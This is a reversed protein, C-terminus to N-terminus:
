LNIRQDIPMTDYKIIPYPSQPPNEALDLPSINFLLISDGIIAHPQYDELWDYSWKGEQKSQYKSMQYFTASIALWGTTPGYGSRWETAKPIYYKVLGGGFYDVKIDRIENEDVYAALRKLDQGWDLSSDVLMKYKPYGYTFENFYSIYKPYAATVPIALSLVAVVVVISAVLKKSEIISRMAFGIFLYLFPLTPMLHRTGINLSGRITIAWYVAVPILLLWMFWKESDNKLKRTFVYIFSFVTLFIIAAPTKLIVAVPFFWSIAKDSFHGLIFTYNGGAVRAFVLAVGLLYHGIGRTIPNEGLIALFNRLLEFKPDLTLNKEIVMKEIEPSTNWVMPIYVIWVVALSILSILIFSKAYSWITKWFKKRDSRTELYSKVLIMIPFIGFLLFASFKLLQAVAFAVGALLLYKLTKQGLYKNFMYVAFTFGLAAAVDTTVYHSHALFEPTFSYLFLVFLGTKYGLEEVAWKYLLVGLLLALLIMPTRSWFLIHDANNGARYLFYWGSNWQEADNWSSDAKLGNLSIFSLPVGAIYKALPPHEPNLRFDNYKIYSYGAPIHAIEDVIGSDGKMSFFSIFFMIILLGAALLNYKFSTVKKERDEKSLKEEGSTKYTWFKNIFFNWVLAAGSAFILGGIDSYGSFTSGSLFSFTLQFAFFNVTFGVVSVIFFRVFYNMIRYSRLSEDEIGELFQKRFTWISNLIFSNTVAVLFSIAKAVSRDDPIIYLILGYYVLWDVLTNAVGVIAFKVFQVLGEKKMERGQYHFDQM